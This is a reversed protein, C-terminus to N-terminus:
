VFRCLSNQKFNTRHAFSDWLLCSMSKVHSSWTQNKAGYLTEKLMLLFLKQVCIQSYSRLMAARRATTGVAPLMSEFSTSSAKHVWVAEPIILPWKTNAQPLLNRFPPLVSNNEMWQFAPSYLNLFVQALPAKKQGWDPLQDDSVPWSGALLWNQYFSGDIHQIEPFNKADEFCSIERRTM